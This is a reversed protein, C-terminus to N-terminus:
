DTPQDAAGPDETPAPSLLRGLLADRAAAGFDIGIDGGEPGSIETRETYGRSKGQTKLFFIIATMNGGLAKSYLKSEINDLMTERAEELAAKVSSMKNIYNYITTRSVGLRQAITAVNGKMEHIQAILVKAKIKAM